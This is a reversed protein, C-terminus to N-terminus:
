AGRGRLVDREYAEVRQFWDAGAIGQAALYRGWVAGFPLTKLEELRVMLRTYDAADQLRRLEEHPMLLAWLLAKQASRAGVGWAAIRNIGADFYDLGILVRGEGGCRIIELAIERLEDDFLAVHDSDWRVGRTLHLAIRDFFALLAPIKDAVNETPHFHGNDLLVATGRTAAYALYFESSGVTYAELGIGFLKSELADIIHRPDYKVAFIEDLSDRLRERPGLRDAPRDKLGDPIWINHLCPTGQARGICAAIARCAKVHRIWYARVAADPHSLTLGDRVMPHAFLTPNLDICVHNGAAWELWPAFHEPLLADRELAEGSAGMAYMAHLNLRKTGPVLSFAAELDRMLEAANRARGPYSGTAQIGGSAGGSSRGEFGRVDDGQWCHLSVPIAACRRMAEEADVGAAAYEKRAAEYLAEENNMM